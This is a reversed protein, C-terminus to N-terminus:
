FAQEFYLNIGTLKAMTQIYQATKEKFTLAKVVTLNRLMPFLLIDEISFKGQELREPQIVSEINDLIPSLEVILEDTQEICVEFDGLTKTKKNIFYARASETSFEPLNLRVQRPSVLKVFNLSDLAQIYPRLATEKEDLIVEGYQKDLYHVIDLSENMYSGDEKQLIPVVKKGVMSIPTEEDDNKLIVLEVNLKKLGIITRARVCYPCHDYEFLKM